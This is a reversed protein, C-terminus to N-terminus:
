KSRCPLCTPEGRGLGMRGSGQAGLWVASRINEAEIPEEPVLSCALAQGSGSPASALSPAFM